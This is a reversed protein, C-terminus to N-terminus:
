CSLNENGTQCFNFITTKKPSVIAVNSNDKSFVVIDEETGQIVAEDEEEQQQVEFKNSYETNM